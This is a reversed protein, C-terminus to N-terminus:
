RPEAPELLHNPRLYAVRFGMGVANRFSQCRREPRDEATEMVLRTCGLAAADRIRRAIVAHQAGRGRHTPLTAAFSLWGFPGQVYLAGTGVLSEGDFVGYHHWGPRGVTAALCRGMGAPWEVAAAFLAGFAGAHRGGIREVRLDTQVEPPPEVGRHLKAWSNHHRFGRYLLWDHLAVPAAAPCVQVFFRRVGARAYEAAVRDLAGETAPSEIGLGLTRNLALVDARAVIGVSADGARALRMGLAAAAKRPAARFMDEWGAAECREIERALAVPVALTITM